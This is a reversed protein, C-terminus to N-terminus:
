PTPQPQWRPWWDNSRSSSLNTLRTGDLDMLWIAGTKYESFILHMGDPSWTQVEESSNPTNTVRTLENSTLDWLYLDYNDSKGTPFSLAIKKSDPSWVHDTVWGTSQDWGQKALITGSDDIVTFEYKNAYYDSSDCLLLIGDPSRYKCAMNNILLRAGSGDENAIYTSAQCDGSCSTVVYTLKSDHQSWVPSSLDDTGTHTQILQTMDSGDANVFYIENHETGPNNTNVPFVSYGGIKTSDPLWTTFVVQLGNATSPLKVQSTGDANIVYFFFPGWISAAKWEELLIKKGNPSWTYNWLIAPHDTILIDSSGDATMVYVNLLNGVPKLYAFRTGDPSWEPRNAYLGASKYKTVESGDPKMSFIGGGTMKSFIILGGGGFPTPTPTLTPSPTITPSPTYTPTLTPTDTSTPTSTMTRTPTMTPGFVQGPGCSTLIFTLVLLLWLYKRQM